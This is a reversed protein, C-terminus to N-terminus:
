TIDEPPLPTTGQTSHSSSGLASPTSPVLLPAAAEHDLQDLQDVADRAEEPTAVNLVRVEPLTRRALGALVHGPGIEVLTDVGMAGLTRQCERWRVPEVLHRTLQEPWCAPDTHALADTNAVIPADGEHFRLTVLRVRICLESGVLCARM